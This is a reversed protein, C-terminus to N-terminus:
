CESFSRSRIATQVTNDNTSSLSESHTVVVSHDWGILVQLRNFLALANTSNARM